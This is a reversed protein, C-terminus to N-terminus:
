LYLLQSVNVRIVQEKDKFYRSELSYECDHAYVIVRGRNTRENDVYKNPYVKVAVSDGLQMVLSNTVSGPVTVSVITVYVPFVSKLSM